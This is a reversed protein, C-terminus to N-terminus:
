FGGIQRPAFQQTMARAGMGCRRSPRKTPLNCVSNCVFQGKYRTRGSPNPVKVMCHMSGDRFRVAVPQGAQAGRLTGAM